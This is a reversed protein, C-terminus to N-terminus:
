VVPAAPSLDALVFGCQVKGLARNSQLMSRKQKIRSFCFSLFHSPTIDWQRQWLVNPHHWCHPRNKNKQQGEDIKV